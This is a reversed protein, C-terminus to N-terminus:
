GGRRALDGNQSLLTKKERFEGVSPGKYRREVRTGSKVVPAPLNGGSAWAGKGGVLPWWDVGM